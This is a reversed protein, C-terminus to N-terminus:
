EPTGGYRWPTMGLALPQGQRRVGAGTVEGLMLTHDGPSTLEAALRCELWALADTLLPCHGAGPRAALGAVRTAAAPESHHTFFRQALAEQDAELINLAFRHAQRVAQALRSNRRLAVLVLAPQASVQSVWSVTASHIVDEVCTTLIYLGNTLLRLADSRVDTTTQEPTM